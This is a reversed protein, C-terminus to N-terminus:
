TEIEINRNHLTACVTTTSHLLVLFVTTPPFESTEVNQNLCFKSYPTQLGRFLNAPMGTM